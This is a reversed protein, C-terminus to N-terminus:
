GIDYEKGLFQISISFKEQKGAIMLCHIRGGTKCKKLERKLITSKM